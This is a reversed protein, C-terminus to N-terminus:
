AKRREVVYMRLLKVSECYQEEALFLTNASVEFSIGYIDISTIIRLFLKNGAAITAKDTNRVYVCNFSTSLGQLKCNNWTVGASQNNLGYCYQAAVYSAKSIEGLEFECALYPLIPNYERSNFPILGSMMIPSKFFFLAKDIENGSDAYVIRNQGKIEVTPSKKRLTYWGGPIIWDKGTALTVRRVQEAEM